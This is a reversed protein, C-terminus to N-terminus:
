RYLCLCKNDVFAGNGNSAGTTGDVARSFIGQAVDDIGVNFYCSLGLVAVLGLFTLLIPLLFSTLRAGHCRKHCPSRSELEHEFDCEHQHQHQGEVHKENGTFYMDMTNAMPPQSVTLKSTM